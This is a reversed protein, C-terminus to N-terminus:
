ANPDVEIIEGWPAPRPKGYRAWLVPAAPEPGFDSCDLDTLYVIASADSANEDIWKFAPAFKTGGRGTATLKFQDGTEYTETRTIKTDCYIITLREAAGEDLLSQLEGGIAALAASSMSGSTDIAAVLHAPAISVLSPAIFGSGIFRRNPRNWSQDKASSEDAFRRLVERWDVRPKDLNTVIEAIAGPMTGAGQAKAIMAAQRTRAQAEAEADARGAEGGPADMIDGCRRGAAGPIPTGQGQGPAGQGPAPTGQGPQSAGPAPAGQGQGQPAPQQQAQEQKERWLTAYIAEASMGTFKADNLCDKPLRFGGAILGPNISHDCAINWTEADRKGRRTHHLRAIHEVEHAVVGILEPEALSLVFDPAFYLKAGDTAMTEVDPREVVELQLALCGWFPQTIVLASRARAIKHLARATTSHNMPASM